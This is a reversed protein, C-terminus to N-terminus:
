TQILSTKDLVVKCGEMKRYDIGKAEEVEGVLALAIELAVVGVVVLQTRCSSCTKATGTDFVARGLGPWRDGSSQIYDMAEEAAGAVTIKCRESHPVIDTDINGICLFFFPLDAQSILFNV